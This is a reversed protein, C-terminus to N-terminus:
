NGAPRNKYIESDIYWGILIVGGYVLLGGILTVVAGLPQLLWGAAAMAGLGALPFGLTRIVGHEPAWVRRSLIWQMQVYWLATAVVMAFAAGKVGYPPILIFDLTIIIAASAITTRAGVVELNKITLTVFGIAVMMLFPISWILIQLTIISENYEPPMLLRIVPGALVTVSYALAIGFVAISRYWFWSNREGDAPDAQERATLGPLLTRSLIIPLWVFFSFFSYAAGYIGVETDGRLVGMIITDARYYVLTAVGTIAFPLTGRVVHMFEESSYDGSFRCVKLRAYVMRLVSEVGMSIVLAAMVAVVSYGM